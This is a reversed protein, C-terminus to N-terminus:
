QALLEEILNAMKAEGQQGGYNLEGLWAGRVTGKKDIV